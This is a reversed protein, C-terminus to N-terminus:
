ERGAWVWRALFAISWILCYLFACIGLAVGAFQLWDTWNIQYGKYEMMDRDCAVMADGYSAGGNQQLSQKLKRDADQQCRKYLATRFEQSDGVQVVTAWLPVAIMAIGTAVIALRNWFGLRM